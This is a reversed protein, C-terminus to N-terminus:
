TKLLILTVVVGLLIGVIFFIPIKKDGKDEGSSALDTLLDANIIVEEEAYREYIEEYNKGAVLNVFKDFRVKVKESSKIEDPANGAVPEPIKPMPEVKEEEFREIKFEPEGDHNVTKGGRLDITGEDRNKM